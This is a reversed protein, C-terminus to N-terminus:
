KALTMVCGIGGNFRFLVKSQSVTYEVPGPLQRIKSDNKFSITEGAIRQETPQLMSGFGKCIPCETGKNEFGTGDCLACKVDGEGRCEECDGENGCHPCESCGDGLCEECEVTGEGECQHCSEGVRKDGKCTLCCAVGEITDPEPWPNWVAGNPIGLCESVRKPIKRGANVSDADGDSPIAVLIAGDTACLMGESIFPKELSYMSATEDCFPKLLESDIIKTM